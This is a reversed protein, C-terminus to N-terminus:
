CFLISCLTYFTGVKVLFYNYFIYVFKTKCFKTSFKLLFRSVCSGACTSLARPWDPCSGLKLKESGPARLGELHLIWCAAPPSLLSSLLPFSFFFFFFLFSLFIFNELSDRSFLLRVRRIQWFWSWLQVGSAFFQRYAFTLLDARASEVNRGLPKRLVEGNWNKQQGPDEGHYKWLYGVKYEFNM